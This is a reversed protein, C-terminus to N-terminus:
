RKKQRTQMPRLVAMMLGGWVILGVPTSSAGGSKSSMVLGALFGILPMAMFASELLMIAFAVKRERGCAVLM